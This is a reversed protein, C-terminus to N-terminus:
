HPACLKKNNATFGVFRSGKPCEENREVLTGSTTAMMTTYIGHSANTFILVIASCILLNIMLTEVTSKPQIASSSM